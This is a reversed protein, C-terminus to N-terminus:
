MNTFNSSTQSLSKIVYSLQLIDGQNCNSSTRWLNYNPWMWFINLQLFDTPSIVHVRGMRKYEVATWFSILDGICLTLGFFRDATDSQIDIVSTWNIHWRWFVNEKTAIRLSFNVSPNQSKSLDPKTARIYEGKLRDRFKDHKSGKLVCTLTLLHLIISAPDVLNVVRMVM